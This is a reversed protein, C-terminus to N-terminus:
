PSSTMGTVWGFLYLMSTSSVKGAPATAFYQLSYTQTHTCACRHTQRRIDGSCRVRDKGYKQAHQRHSHSTGKGAPYCFGLPCSCNQPNEEGSGICQVAYWKPGMFVASSILICIPIILQSPNLFLTNQLPSSGQLSPAIKRSFAQCAQFGLSNCIPSNWAAAHMIPSFMQNCANSSDTMPWSLPSIACWPCDLRIYLIAKNHKSQCWKSLWLFAM